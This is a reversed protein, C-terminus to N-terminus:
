AGCPDPALRTGECSELTGAAPPPPEFDTTQAAHIEIFGGTTSLAAGEEAVVTLEGGTVIVTAGRKLYLRVVGGNVTLTAGDCVVRAENGGDVHADDDSAEVAEADVANFDCPENPDLVVCGTAGCLTALLLVWRISQM